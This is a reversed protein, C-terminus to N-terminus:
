WDELCLLVIKLYESSVNRASRDSVDQWFGVVVYQRGLLKTATQWMSIAGMKADGSM